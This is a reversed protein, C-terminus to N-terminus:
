LLRSEFLHTKFKNLSAGYREQFEHPDLDLIEPANQYTQILSSFDNTPKVIAVSVPTPNFREVDCNIVEELDAIAQEKASADAWVPLMLKKAYFHLVVNPTINGERYSSTKKLLEGRWSLFKPVDDNLKQNLLSLVIQHKSEIMGIGRAKAKSGSGQNQEAGISEIPKQPLFVGEAKLSDKENTKKSNTKKSYVDNVLSQNVENVLRTFTTLQNIENVLEDPKSTLDPLEMIEYVTAKGKSNGIELKRIYCYEVLKAIAKAISPRSLGTEKQLCSYSPFCQHSTNSHRLLSFFVFGTQAGLFAGHGDDWFKNPVRYFPDVMRNVIKDAM